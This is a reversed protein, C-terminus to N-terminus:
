ATLREYKEEPTLEPNELIGVFAHYNDTDDEFDSVCRFREAANRRLVEWLVFIASTEGEDIGHGTIIKCGEELRIIAEVAKILDIYDEKNM